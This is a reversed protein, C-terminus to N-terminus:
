FWPLCSLRDEPRTEFGSVELISYYHQDNLRLVQGKEYSDHNIQLGNNIDKEQIVSRYQNRLFAVEHLYRHSKIWNLKLNM